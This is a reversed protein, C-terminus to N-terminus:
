RLFVASDSDSLAVEHMATADEILVEAAIPVPFTQPARTIAQTGPMSGSKTVAPPKGSRAIKLIHPESM